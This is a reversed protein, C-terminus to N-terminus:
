LFGALLSGDWAAKTGPNPGRPWIRSIQRGGKSLGAVKDPCRAETHMRPGSGGETGELFVPDVKRHPVWLLIVPPM